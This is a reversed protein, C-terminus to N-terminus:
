ITTTKNRTHGYIMKSQKTPTWNKVYKVLALIDHDAKLYEELRDRPNEPIESYAHAEYNWTYSYVLAINRCFTTFLKEEKLHKYLQRREQTDM